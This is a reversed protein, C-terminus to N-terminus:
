DSSTQRSEHIIRDLNNPFHTDSEKESASTLADIIAIWKVFHETAIRVLAEEEIINALELALELRDRIHQPRKDATVAKLEEM